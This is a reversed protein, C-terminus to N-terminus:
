LLFDWLGSEQRWNELMGIYLDIVLIVPNNLKKSCFKNFVSEAYTM